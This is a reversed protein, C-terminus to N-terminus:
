RPVSEVSQKEHEQRAGNRSRRLLIIDAVVVVAICAAHVAVVSWVSQGLLPELRQDHLIMNGATWGLVLAAVDLLWPLRGILSAILASGALLIAMSILLGVSLLVIDGHALGGIALVNDLSMTFDAIIITAMAAAFGASADRTKEDGHSTRGVLLRIAILLLLLGGVAQLLPLTLLLTAAAAVAIRLIIAGAGGVLIALRRQRAPLEGAAAGIILANDGSLALDVLIIGGLAALENIMFLGLEQFSGARLMCMVAYWILTFPLQAFGSGCSLSM